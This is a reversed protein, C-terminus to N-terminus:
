SGWVVIVLKSFYQTVLEGEEKHQSLVPAKLELSETPFICIELFLRSFHFSRRWRLICYKQLQFYRQLGIIYIWQMSPFDVIDEDRCEM